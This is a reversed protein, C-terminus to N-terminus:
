TYIRDVSNIIAHGCSGLGVDMMLAIFEDETVVLRPKTNKFEVLTFEKRGDTYVTVTLEDIFADLPNSNALLAAMRDASHTYDTLEAVITDCEEELFEVYSEHDRETFRPNKSYLSRLENKLLILKCVYFLM